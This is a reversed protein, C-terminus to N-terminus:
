AVCRVCQLVAARWMSQFCSFLAWPMGDGAATVLFPHAPLFRADYLGEPDPTALSPAALAKGTGASRVLIRGDPDLCEDFHTLSLAHARALFIALSLACGRTRHLYLSFPSFSLALLIV